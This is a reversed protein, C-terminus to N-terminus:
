FARFDDIVNVDAPRNALAERLRAGVARTLDRDQGDDRYKSQGRLKTQKEVKVNVSYPRRSNLITVVARARVRKDEGPVDIDSPDFWDSTITRGNRSEEMVGVPVHDLIVRRVVALPLMVENITAKTQCGQLVLSLFVGFLVLALGRGVRVTQIGMRKM